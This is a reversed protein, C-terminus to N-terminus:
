RLGKNNINEILKSQSLLLQSLTFIVQDSVQNHPIRRQTSSMNFITCLLVCLEHFLKLLISPCGDPGCANSSKTEKLATRVEDPSFVPTEM